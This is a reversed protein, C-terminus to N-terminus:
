ACYMGRIIMKEREHYTCYLQSLSTRITQTLTHLGPWETVCLLLSQIFAYLLPRPVMIKGVGMRCRYALSSCWIYFVTLSIQQGDQAQQHKLTLPEVGGQRGM